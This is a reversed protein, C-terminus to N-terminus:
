FYNKYHLFAVLGIWVVSIAGGVILSKKTNLSGDANKFVKGFGLALATLTPVSAGIGIAM